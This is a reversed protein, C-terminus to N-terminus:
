FYGRFRSVADFAEAEVICRPRAYRQPNGIDGNRLLLLVNERFGVLLDSLDLILVVVSEDRFLLLIPLGDGCPRMRTFLDLSLNRLM